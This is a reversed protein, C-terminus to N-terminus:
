YAIHSHFKAAPPALPRLSLCYSYFCNERYRSTSCIWEHSPVVTARTKAQHHPRVFSGLCVEALRIMSKMSGGALARENSANQSFVIQIPSINIFYMYTHLVSLEYKSIPHPKLIRPCRNCFIESLVLLFLRTLRWSFSWSLSWVFCFLGVKQRFCSM